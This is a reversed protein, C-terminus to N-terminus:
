TPLTAWNREPITRDNGKVIAKEKDFFPLEVVKCSHVSSDPLKIHLNRGIWDDAENFRAFGVGIGLTPSPVGATIYGVV